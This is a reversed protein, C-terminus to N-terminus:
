LYKRSENNSWRSRSLEMLEQVEQLTRSRNYVVMLLDSWESQLMTFVCAGFMVSLPYECYM